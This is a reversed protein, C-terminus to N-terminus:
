MAQRLRNVRLFSRLLPSYSVLARSAIFCLLVGEDVLLLKAPTKNTFDLAVNEWLFACVKV